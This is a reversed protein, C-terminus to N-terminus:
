LNLSHISHLRFMGQELEIGNRQWAPLQYTLKINFNFPLVISRIKARPNKLSQYVLLIAIASVDARMKSLASSLSASVCSTVNIIKTINIKYAIVPASNLLYLTHLMILRKRISILELVDVFGAECDEETSHEACIETEEYGWGEEGWFYGFVPSEGISNSSM